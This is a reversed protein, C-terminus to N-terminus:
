TFYSTNVQKTKTNPAHQPPCTFHHIKHIKAYKSANQIFNGTNKAFNDGNQIFKSTYQITILAPLNTWFVPLKAQFVLLDISYTTLNAWFTPLKDLVITFTYFINTFKDLISTFVCFNLFDKSLVSTFVCFNLFEVMKCTWWLIPRQIIMTTNTKEIIIPGAAYKCWSKKKKIISLVSLVRGLSLPLFFFLSLAVDCFLLVHCQFGCLAILAVWCVHQSASLYCVLLWKTTCCSGWVVSVAFKSCSWQSCSCILRKFGRSVVQSM